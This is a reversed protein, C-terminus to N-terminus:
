AEGQLAKDAFEKACGERLERRAHAIRQRIFREPSASQFLIEKFIFDGATSPDASGYGGVQELYRFWLILTSRDDEPMADFVDATRAVIATRRGREDNALYRAIEDAWETRLYGGSV